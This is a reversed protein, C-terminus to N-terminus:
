GLEHEERVDCDCFLDGHIEGFLCEQTAVVKGELTSEYTIAEGNGCLVSIWWVSLM